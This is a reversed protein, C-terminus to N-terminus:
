DSPQIYESPVTDPMYTSKHWRVFLFTQIVFIFLIFKNYADVHLYLSYSYGTLQFNAMVVKHTIKVTCTDSKRSYHNSLVSSSKKFVMILRVNYIQSMYVSM